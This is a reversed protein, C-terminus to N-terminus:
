CDCLIAKYTQFNLFHKCVFKVPVGYNLYKKFNTEYILQLGEDKSVFSVRDLLSTQTKM